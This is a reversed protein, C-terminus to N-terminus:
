HRWQFLDIALLPGGIYGEVRKLPIKMLASM